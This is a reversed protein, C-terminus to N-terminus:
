IGRKRQDIQRNGQLRTLFKNEPDVPVVFNGVPTIKDPKAPGTASVFMELFIVVVIVRYGLPVGPKAPVTIVLAPLIVLKRSPAFESKAKPIEFHLHGNRGIMDDSGGAFALIISM